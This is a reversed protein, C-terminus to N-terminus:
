EQAGLTQKLQRLQDLIDPSYLAQIKQIDDHVVQRAQRAKSLRKQFEGVDQGCSDLTVVSERAADYTEYHDKFADINADLATLKARFQEALPQNNKELRVTFVDLRQYIYQYAQMRDVRARLDKPRQINKLYNQALGCREAVNGEVANTSRTHLM